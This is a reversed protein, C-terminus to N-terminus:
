GDRAWSAPWCGRAGRPLRGPGQRLDEGPGPRRLGLGPALRRAVRRRLPPGRGRAAPRRRPRRRDRPQLPDLRRRQHRGRRRPRALRHLYEVFEGESNTQFFIPELGLERAWGAIRRELEDLSLGGYVDPDRRELVDFNVGHLVAVRNHAATMALLEEVAARVKAPDVLQGDRPEGPSPSSSSASARRRHAEQRAALADLVADVDIAPDLGVPLGHRRLIAEVESACSAAGRLPAAGGAPRARGGRRAPLALLREGGRDRPRGHPRPQAVHACAPTASTPPSSRASTAPAPSSSTTSSPRTSRRSRACGSGSRAAPWCARDEAGRRLRGRAGGRPLRRSRRRHRRDGGGAPPLRRRLEQGRAPRRRDQRRLRLRGPRGAHDAGPRGPRRAPLHPRLLRRPRRRRRRRARRRPGRPDDRRPGARAAGARGRGDDEGGRGARGRGAGRAARAARRLAAGVARDTVCFRRGECRGGAPRSCAAASSSRTSAPPAPRGSCGRGPPCSPSRRSRRCRGRRRRRPRGIPVVADALEEYLPLASPWCARSTRPAPPWRGTAAPSGGGPRARRRGPALRRHPPRAGRPGARLPRQRRRARDRRRRREGAARRRGRGRAGPVGGRRRQEFAEAIPM